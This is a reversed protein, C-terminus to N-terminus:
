VIHIGPQSNRPFMRRARIDFGIQVQMQDAPVKSGDPLTLEQVSFSRNSPSAYRFAAGLVPENEFVRAMTWHLMPGKFQGHITSPLFSLESYRPVYGFVEDPNESNPYIEKRLTAQDGVHSFVPNPIDWRTSRLLYKPVVNQYQARPMVHVIAMIYCHEIVKIHIPRNTGGSIGHGALNGQPSESNTSSTQLVESFIVPLRFSGHFIPRNVREDPIRVGFMRYTFEVARAGATQLIEGFRQMRAALRFTLLDIATVGTLDAYLNNPAIQGKVTSSYATADANAEGASGLHFATNGAFQGSNSGSVYKFSLPNVVATNLDTGAATLVPANGAMPVRVVPGRQTNPMSRGYYDRQWAKRFLGNVTMQYDISDGQPTEFAYRGFFFDEYKKLDLKAIFNQDRSNENIIHMYCVIPLANLKLGAGVIYHEGTQPDTYNTPYNLWDALGGPEIGTQPITITPMVQTDDGAEGGSLYSDWDLGLKDFLQRWPVQYFDVGINVDAMTPSVQPMFRTLNAATIVFSEGPFAEFMDGPYNLGMVMTGSVTHPLRQPYRQFM